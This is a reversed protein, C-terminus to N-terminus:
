SLDHHECIAKHAYHLLVESSSSLSIIGREMFRLFSRGVRKLLTEWVWLAKKVEFFDAREKNAADIDEQSAVAVAVGKDRVSDVAEAFEKFDKM